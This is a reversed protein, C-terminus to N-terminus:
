VTVLGLEDLRIGARSAIVHEQHIHLLGDKGLRETAEEIKKPELDLLDQELDTRTWREDHADSLICLMVGREAVDLENPWTGRNAIACAYDDDPTPNQPNSTGKDPM